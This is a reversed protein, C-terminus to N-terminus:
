RTRRRLYIISAVLLGAPIALAPAYIATRFMVARVFLVGDRDAAFHFAAPVAVLVAALCIAFALLYRWSDSESTETPNQRRLWRFYAVAVIAFGVFTSAVQLVLPLPFAATGVAVVTDRLLAIRQAFWGTDHTFSDWFIHTWIGVLLSLIIIWWRAPRLGDFGPCLPLLAPRHPRPLAFAVPK